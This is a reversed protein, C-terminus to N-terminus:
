NGLCRPPWPSLGGPEVILRLRQAAYAVALLAQDDDVSVGQMGLSQAIPFTVEGPCPTVIADCISGSKHANTLRKGARLSRGYDDFGDPEAVYIQTDPNASKLAQGMGVALEGGGCCILAQDFVLSPEQIALQELAEM